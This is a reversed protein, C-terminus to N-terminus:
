PACPDAQGGVGLQCKLQGMGARAIRHVPLEIHRRQLLDQAPVHVHRLRQYQVAGGVAALAVQLSGVETAPEVISRALRQRVQMAGFIVQCAHDGIAQRRQSDFFVGCRHQLAQHQAKLAIRVCPRQRWTRDHALAPDRESIFHPLQQARLHHQYQDALAGPEAGRVAHAQIQRPRRLNAQGVLAAIANRIHPGGAQTVVLGSALQVIQHRLRALALQRADRQLILRRGRGIRLLCRWRPEQKYRPLRGDDPTQFHHRRATGSVNSRYSAM